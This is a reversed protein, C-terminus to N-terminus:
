LCCRQLWKGRPTSTAPSPDPRCLAQRVLWALYTHSKFELSAVCTRVGQRMADLTIQGALTSKGCGNWGAIMSTQGFGVPTDGLRLLLEFWPVHNFEPLFSGLAIFRDHRIVSLLGPFLGSDALAPSWEPKFSPQSRRGAADMRDEDTYVLELKPRSVLVEAVALLAEPALRSHGPLLTLHTGGSRHAAANLARVVVSPEAAELFSFRTDSEPPPTSGVFCAKWQPYIQGRLSEVCGQLQASTCGTADVLVTFHPGRPAIEEASAELISRLRPTLRNAQLWAAYADPTARALHALSAPAFRRYDRYAKACARWV